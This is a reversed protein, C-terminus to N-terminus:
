HNLLYSNLANCLEMGLTHPSLATWSQDRVTNESILGKNRGAYDARYLDVYTKLRVDYRSYLYTTNGGRRVWRNWVTLIGTKEDYELSRTDFYVEYRSNSAALEWAADADKPLTPLPEDELNSLKKNSQPTTEKATEKSEARKLYKKWSPEKTTKQPQAEKEEAAAPEKKTASASTEQASKAATEKAEARRLYKKWSPETGDNKVLETTSETKKVPKNTSKVPTQKEQITEKTEIQTDPVPITENQLEQAIKRNKTTYSRWKPQAALEAAAKQRAEEKKKLAEQREAEKQAEQQKARTTYTRWSTTKAATEAPALAPFLIMTGMLVSLWTKKKM